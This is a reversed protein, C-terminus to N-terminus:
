SGLSKADYRPVLASVVVSCGSVDFNKEFATPDFVAGFEVDSKQVKMEDPTGVTFRSDSNLARLGAPMNAHSKSGFISEVRELGASHNAMGDTLDADVPDVIVVYCVFEIEDQNNEHYPRRRPGWAVWGGPVWTNGVNYARKRVRFNRAALDTDANLIGAIKDLIAKHRSILAM